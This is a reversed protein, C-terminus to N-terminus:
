FVLLIVMKSNLLEIELSITKTKYSFEEYVALFDSIIIIIIFM